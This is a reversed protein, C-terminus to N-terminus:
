WLLQDAWYSNSDKIKRTKNHRIKYLRRRKRAVVPGEKQLYLWYDMMGRAGVSAVRKGNRFVDIKKKQNKSPKVTVGLKKAAKRTGSSIRYTM